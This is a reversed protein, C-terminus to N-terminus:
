TVELLSGGKKRRLGKIGGEGMIWKSECRKSGEGAGEVVNRGRAECNM